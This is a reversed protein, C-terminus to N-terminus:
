DGAGQRKYRQVCDDWYTEYSPNVSGDRLNIPRMYALAPDEMAPENGSPLRFSVKFVMAIERNTWSTKTRESYYIYALGYRGSQCKAVHGVVM